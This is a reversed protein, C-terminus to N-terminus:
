SGGAPRVQALVAPKENHCSVDRVLLELSKAGQGAHFRFSVDFSTVFLGPDQFIKSLSACSVIVGMQWFRRDLNQPVRNTAHGIAVVRM